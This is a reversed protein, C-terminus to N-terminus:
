ENPHLSCFTAAQQEKAAEEQKQLALFDLTKIHEEDKDQPLDKYMSGNKKRNHRQKKISENKIDSLSKNLAGNEKKTQKIQRISKNM